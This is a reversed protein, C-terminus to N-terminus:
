SPPEPPTGSAQQAPGGGGVSGGGGPPGPQLGIAALVRLAHEPVGELRVELGAREAQQLMEALTYAGTLDIRGLGGCQIVVRRVDPEEALRALLREEMVPASGFWLVGRPELHLTDGERRASVDPTRERWLHVSASMGVGLLVALEIRPALALTAVFTGWGILAQAPSARWLTLLEGPRVLNAIAAIVIGALVALPLPSLVPTFPLFLLVAAGTVLGSWRSRAGALRNVTTRALAGGVPLGATLGSVLNAMGTSLFERDPDWRQRDESAYLRSISAGDAFGVVAIVVGPVLLSPLSQWPLDLSLTPLGAPIAGVTPGAYGAAVSYILGGVAAILVGPVLPHVRAAVLVVGVTLLALTVSTAAWSAGHTLSWGARALVSGDPAASGLAAPVQSAVILIAAASLFGTMVARSMLYNVWGVRLLGVAVRAVGVVLALLAAMAAYAETGTPALPLLAGLTLLSTLAVPGTQLYPSSALFAAAIPPLAAAYLGHHSPLGALEAYAMSQPILILAVSLGALVDRGTLRGPPDSRIPTM